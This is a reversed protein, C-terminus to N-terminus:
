PKRPGTSPMAGCANVAESMSWISPFDVSAPSDPIDEVAGKERFRWVTGLMVVDALVAQGLQVAQKRPTDLTPDKSIAGFAATSQEWTVLRGSFRKVLAHNVLRNMIRDSGETLGRYDLTMQTLTQSLPRPLPANPSELKGLLFPMLAVTVRASDRSVPQVPTSQAKIEARFLFLVLM